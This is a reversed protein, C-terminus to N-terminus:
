IKPPLLKEGDMQYIGVLYGDEYTEGVKLTGVVTVPADMVPRIGDNSMTVLVFENLAPAVGYCCSMQSRVIVFQKARGGDIGIPIMFGTVTARKGSLAHVPAPILDKAPKTPAADKPADAAPPEPLPYEFSALQEFTLVLAPRGDVDTKAPESPADSSFGGPAGLLFAILLTSTRVFTTRRTKM